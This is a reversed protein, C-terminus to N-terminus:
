AELNTALLYHAALPGQEAALPAMAALTAEARQGFDHDGPTAALRKLVRAAECNSVFPKLRDRM